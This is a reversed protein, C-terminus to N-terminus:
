IVFLQKKFLVQRAPKLIPQPQATPQLIEVTQCVIQAEQKQIHITEHQQQQQVPQQSQQQPQQLPLQQHIEQHQNNHHEQPQSNLFGACCLNM